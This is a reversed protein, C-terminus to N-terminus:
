FWRELSQRSMALVEDVTAARPKADVWQEGAPWFVRAHETDQGFTREIVTVTGNTPQSCHIESKHQAYTAGEGYVEAAEDVLSVPKPETMTCAMAGCQITTVLYNPTFFGSDISYRQNVLRGAVVQSKFNWPHDHVDSVNITRFRNDWVHLRTAKGGLYLRFMGFGQVSWNFYQAHALLEKVLAKKM